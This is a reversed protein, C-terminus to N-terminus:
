LLALIRLLSAYSYRRKSGFWERYVEFNSYSHEFQRSYLHAIDIQDAKSFSGSTKYKALGMVFLIIFGVVGNKAKLLSDYDYVADLFYRYVYYILLQEYEYERDKMYRNFEDIDSILNKIDSKNLYQLTEDRRRNWDPNIIEVGKFNDFFAILDKRIREADALKEETVSFEGQIFSYNKLCKKLIGSRNEEDSFKDIVNVILEDREKDLRKQIEYSYNMLLVARDRVQFNRDSVIDYALERAQNLMVFTLPDIDNIVVKDDGDDEIIFDLRDRYNFIIEGATICSPAIGIEKISGYRNIFRPFEDCTECLKDEGLAIILDCLNEDNLFPCRMNDKLTFTCEGDESPVMVSKLREGFAGTVTKYYVYSQADVDVDWGACCTDTCDGAICKFNKYYAPTVVKM